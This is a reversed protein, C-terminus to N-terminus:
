KRLKKRNKEQKEKEEDDRRKADVKRQSRQLFGVCTNQWRREKDKMQDEVGQRIDSIKKNAAGKRDNLAEERKAQKAGLDTRTAELKRNVAEMQRERETDISSKLADLETAHRARLANRQSPPALREAKKFENEKRALDRSLDNIRAEARQMAEARQERMKEEMLELDRNM